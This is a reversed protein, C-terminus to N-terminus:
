LLSEMLLFANQQCKKSQLLVRKRKGQWVSLSALAPQKSIIIDDPLAIAFYEKNIYHRALSLAHGLGLPEPQRIYTFQAARALKEISTLLGMKDQEKALPNFCLPDFHDAISEKGQATIVLMTNLQALLAEEAVYQIAPKTLLPLMERPCTKTYPLFRQGLGAAPIIVKSIEM